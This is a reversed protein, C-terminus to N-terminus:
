PARNFTIGTHLFGSVTASVSGSHSCKTVATAHRHCHHPRHHHHRCHRHHSSPPPLQSPSTPSPLPLSASTATISPAENPDACHDEPGVQGETIQVGGRCVEQGRLESQQHHHHRHCSHHHHHSCWCALGQQFPWPTQTGTKDQLSATHPGLDRSEGAKPVVQDTHPSLAQQCELPWAALTRYLCLHGWARSPLHAQLFPVPQMPAGPVGSFFCLQSELVSTQGHALPYHTSFEATLLCCVKPAPPPPGSPPGRGSIGWCSIDQEPRNAGTELSTGQSFEGLVRDRVCFQATNTSAHM